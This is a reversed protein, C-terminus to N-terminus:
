GFNGVGSPPPDFSIPSKISLYQQVAVVLLSFSAIHVACLYLHPRSRMSLLIDLDPLSIGSSYHLTRVTVHRPSRCPLVQSTSRRFPHTTKGAPVRNLHPKGYITSHVQPAIGILELDTLPSCGPASRPRCKWRRAVKHQGPRIHEGTRNAATDSM